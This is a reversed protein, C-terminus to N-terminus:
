KSTNNTMLCYAHLVCRYKTLATKLIQLFVQYDREDEFIPKRRVGRYTVVQRSFIPMDLKVVEEFDTIDSRGSVQWMGTIGPKIALRARHHLEYKEWEDLTPPRTGVLSM